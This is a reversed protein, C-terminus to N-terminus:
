KNIDTDKTIFWIIAIAWFGLSSIIGIWKIMEIIEIPVLDIRRLAALYSTLNLLTIIGDLLSWFFPWYRIKVSNAV